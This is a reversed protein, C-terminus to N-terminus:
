RTAKRRKKEIRDQERQWARREAWTPLPKGVYEDTVPM